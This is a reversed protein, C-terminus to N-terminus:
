LGNRYEPLLKRLKARARRLVGRLEKYTMCLMRAIETHKQGDLDMLMAAQEELELKALADAVKGRRENATVDYEISKMADTVMVHRPRKPCLKPIVDCFSHTLLTGILAEFKHPLLKAKAHLSPDAKLKDLLHLLTEQVLDDALQKELGHIFQPARRKVEALLWSDNLMADWIERASHSEKGDAQRQFLARLSDPSPADEDSYRDKSM